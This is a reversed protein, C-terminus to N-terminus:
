QGHPETGRDNVVDIPMTIPLRPQNIGSLATHSGGNILTSDANITASLTTGADVNATGVIGNALATGVNGVILVGLMGVGMALSLLHRNLRFKLINKM